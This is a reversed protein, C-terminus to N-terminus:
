RYGMRALNNYSKQLCTFPSEYCTDQEVLLYETGGAAELAALIAPFNLNGEGVPAMRVEMGHVTMDKLHVCPLRGKLRDIWQLIDCGAAQLWYTDLTVGMLDAPIAELMTDMMLRGDAMREFEFNHNHYMFRMGADRIKRAAPTFDKAFYDFWEPAAGRYREPLSGLGIHKCGLIAHERILADTDGLIRAEPVHTLVIKLGCADCMDRLKHPDIPGVGSIQVTTYGMSAVKQLSREIDDERQMFTRLTYAQAGTIM